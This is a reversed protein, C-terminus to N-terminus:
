RIVQFIHAPSKRPDLEVYNRPGRWQYEPQTPDYLDRVPFAKDSGLGMESIPLTLNGGQYLTGSDGTKFSLNLPHLVFECLDVRCRRQRPDDTVLPGRGHSLWSRTGALGM